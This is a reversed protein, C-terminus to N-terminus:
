NLSITVKRTGSNLTVSWAPADPTRVIIEPSIVKHSGPNGAADLATVRWAYLTLDALPETRWTYLWTSSNAPVRAIKTWGGGGIRQEVLYSAAAAATSRLWQLTRRAPACRSIFTTRDFEPDRTDFVEVTLREGAEPRLTLRGSTTRGYYVGNVWWYFWLPGRLWSKAAITATGGVTAASLWPRRRFPPLFPLVRAIM